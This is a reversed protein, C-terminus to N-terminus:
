VQRDSFGLELSGTHSFLPCGSNLFPVIFELDTMPSTHAFLVNPRKFCVSYNLIFGCHKKSFSVVM